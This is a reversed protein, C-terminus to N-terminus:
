SQQQESKELIAAALAAIAKATAVRAFIMAATQMKPDEAYNLANGAWQDSVALLHRPVQEARRQAKNDRQISQAALVQDATLERLVVEGLSGKLPTLLETLTAVTKKNLDSLSALWDTIAQGAMYNPSSRVGQALEERLEGLKAYVETKTKASV